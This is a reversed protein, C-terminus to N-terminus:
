DLWKGPNMIHNPDFVSKIGKMIRFHEPTFVVDLYPKQVLGVGHEGSITGGLDRCVEFIERIAKPIEYNWVEESLNNKLINVHLNGDGAHGYCVSQFGYKSGIEKVAVLLDPLAARPVVTDEEKYVSTQKVTEGIGRRV